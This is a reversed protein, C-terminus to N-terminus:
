KIAEMIGRLVTNPETHWIMPLKQVSQIENLRKLSSEQRQHVRLLYSDFVDATEREATEPMPRGQL